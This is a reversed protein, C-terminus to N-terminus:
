REGEGEGESSEGESLGLADMFAMSVKAAYDRREEGELTQATEKMTLFKGFLEQFSMDTDCLDGALENLSGADGLEGSAAGGENAGGSASHGSAEGGQGGTNGVTNNGATNNGANNTMVHNSWVHSKLAEVVRDVGMKEEFGNDEDDVNTNVDETEILEFQHQICFTNIDDRTATNTTATPCYLLCIEVEKDSVTSIIRKIKDISKEDHFDAILLVAEVGVHTHFISPTVLILLLLKKSILM